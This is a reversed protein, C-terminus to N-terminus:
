FVKQTKSAKNKQLDFTQNQSESCVPAETGAPKWCFLPDFLSSRFVFCVPKTGTAAAHADSPVSTYKSPCCTVPLQLSSDAPRGTLGATTASPPTLCSSLASSCRPLLTSHCWLAVDALGPPEVAWPQAERQSVLMSWTTQCCKARHLCAAPLLLSVPLLSYPLPPAIHLWEPPTQPLRFLSSPSIHNRPSM